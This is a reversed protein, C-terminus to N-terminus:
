KDKSVNLELIPLLFQESHERVADPFKIAMLDSIEGEKEKTLQWLGLTLDESSFM